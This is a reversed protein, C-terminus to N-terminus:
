KAAAQAAEAAAAAKIEELRELAADFWTETVGALAPPNALEDYMCLTKHVQEVLKVITSQEGGRRVPLGQKAAAIRTARNEERELAQRRLEFDSM